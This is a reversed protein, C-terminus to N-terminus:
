PVEAGKALKVARHGYRAWITRSELLHAVHRGALALEDVSLAERQSQALVSAIEQDHAELVEDLTWPVRAAPKKPGKKTM